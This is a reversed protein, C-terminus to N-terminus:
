TYSNANALIIKTSEDEEGYVKFYVEYAKFGYFRAEEMRKKKHYLAGLNNYSSATIIDNEGYIKERIKISRLYFEEAKELQDMKVYVGGLNNYSTATNGNNEGFVRLSIDIAKLYAAESREFLSLSKYLLGLNNYCLATEESEESLLKLSRLYFGEAIELDGQKYCIFGIKNMLVASEESNEEYIKLVKMLCEQAKKFDGMNEYLVGLNNYLGGTKENTEGYLAEFIRMSKMYFNEAKEILGLNEYVGGLNQCINAINEHKAEFILEFIELCRLFAVEAKEYEGQNAFVRGMNNYCNGVNEDNGDGFTKLSEIFCQEAKTFDAMKDYLIGLNSQTRATELHNSGLVEIRIELAQVYCKEAKVLDDNQCYFVGLNNYCEATQCHFKGYFDKSEKLSKKYFEEAKQIDGKVEYLSALNDYSSIIDIHTEGYLDLRITLAKQYFDEAKQFDGQNEYFVGLINFCNATESYNKKYNALRFNLSKLYFEEAKKLDGKNEYFAAINQNTESNNPNIKLSNLYYEEAKEPNKMMNEYYLGLNNYCISSFLSKENNILSSYLNLAKNFSKEAKILNKAQYCKGLDLYSFALNKLSNGHNKKIFRHNRLFFDEAKNTEGITLFFQALIVYSKMIEKTKKLNEHIKLSKLYFDEAEKFNSMKENLFGIKEYTQATKEHIEGYLGLRLKLTKALYLKAKKIKGIFAYFVGLNELSIASEPSKKGFVRKRLLFAEKFYKKENNFDSKEHYFFALVDLAEALKESNEDSNRLYDLYKQYFAEAKEFLGIESYLTGLNKWIQPLFDSKISKEAFEESKILGKLLIEECRQYNESELYLGGLENLCFLEEEENEMSKEPRKSSFDDFGSEKRSKRQFDLEQYFTWTKELHFKADELSKEGKTKQYLAKHEQHLSKLGSFTRAKKKAKKNFCIQIFKRLDFAKEKLFSSNESMESQIEIFDPRKEPKKELMKMLFPKIQPYEIFTKQDHLIGSELDKKELFYDIMKLIIIGLSFVDAKYPNYAQNINEKIEPAIFEDSFGLFTSFDILKSEEQLLSGFSYDILGFDFSNDLLYISKLTIQRNAIGHTQLLALLKIFKSLFIMLELDSFVKGAKLIEELNVAGCEIQLLIADSANKKSSKLIGYYKFFRPEDKALNELKEYLFNELLLQENAQPKSLDFNFSKL